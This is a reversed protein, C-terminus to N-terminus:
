GQVEHDGEDWREDCNDDDIETSALTSYFKRLWFTKLQTKVKITISPISFKKAPRLAKFCNKLQKSARKQSCGCLSFCLFASSLHVHQVVDDADLPNRVDVRKWPWRFRWEILCEFDLAGHIFSVMLYGFSTWLCLQRLSSIFMIIAWLTGVKLNTKMELPLNLSWFFNGRHM